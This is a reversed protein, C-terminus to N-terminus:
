VLVKRFFYQVVEKVSTFVASKTSPAIYYGKEFTPRIQSFFVETSFTDRSLWYEFYGSYFFHVKRQLTFKLIKSM